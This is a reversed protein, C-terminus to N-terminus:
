PVGFGRGRLRDIDNTLGVIFLFAVLLFGFMGAREMVAYPIARGRVKEALAWFVHGGDLPLFPFLNVIALSMSIVALLGFADVANSNVAQRTREYSGVVGSVQKRAQSDYFIKTIASVTGKTIDWM